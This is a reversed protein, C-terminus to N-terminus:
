TVSSNPAAHENDPDEILSATLLSESFAAHEEISKEVLLHNESAWRRCHYDLEKSAGKCLADQVDFWVHKAKDLNTTGFTIHFQAQRLDCNALTTATHIQSWPTEPHLIVLSRKM